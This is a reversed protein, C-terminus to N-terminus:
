HTQTVPQPAPKTVTLKYRRDLGRQLLKDRLEKSVLVEVEDAWGSCPDPLHTIADNGVLNIQKLNNIGSICNPLSTLHLGALDLTQVRYDYWWADDIRKLAEARNETAGGSKEWRELAWYFVNESPTFPPEVITNQLSSSTNEKVSTNLITPTIRNETIHKVGSDPSLFEQRAPAAAKPSSPVLRRLHDPSNKLSPRRGASPALHVHKPAEAIEVANKQIADIKSELPPTKLPAERKQKKLQWYYDILGYQQYRMNKLHVFFLHYDIAANLSKIQEPNANNIFETCDFRTKQDALPTLGPIHNLNVHHGSKCNGHDHKHGHGHAHGHDHAHGHGHAHEHDHKHSVPTGCPACEHANHHTNLDVHDHALQHEHAGGSKAFDENLWTVVVEKDLGLHSLYHWSKELFSSQNDPASCNQALKILQQLRQTQLVESKKPDDHIKVVISKNLAHKKETAAAGTTPLWRFPREIKKSWKKPIFDHWQPFATAIKLGRKRWRHDSLLKDKITKLTTKQHRSSAIELLCKEETLNLRPTGLDGNRPRFKRPWINNMIGTSAAGAGLLSLGIPLTAAGVGLGLMPVSLFTTVCGGAFTAFGVANSAFFRRKSQTVQNVKNKGEIISESDAQEIRLLHNWSRKLDYVNRGFQGTAYLAIAPLAFPHSWVASSLTLTSAIGNVVGPVAVNWAADFKSYQLTKKFAELKQVVDPRRANRASVIDTDIGKIFASINQHNLYAGKINRTAATLGLLGFPAAIGLFIGWHEASYVPALDSWHTEGTDANQIEKIAAAFEDFDLGATCCPCGEKDQQIAADLASATKDVAFVDHHHDGHDQQVKSLIIPALKTM